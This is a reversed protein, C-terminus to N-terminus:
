VHLVEWSWGRLIMEYTYLNGPHAGEYMMCAFSGLVRGKINMDYM